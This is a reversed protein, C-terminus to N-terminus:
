RGPSSSLRSPPPTSGGIETILRVFFSSAVPPPLLGGGGIAIITSDIGVAELPAGGSSKVGEEVDDEEDDEATDRDSAAAVVADEPKAGASPAGVEDGDSSSEGGDADIGLLLPTLLLARPSPVGLTEGESKFGCSRKCTAVVPFSSTAEGDEAEWSLATSCAGGAIPTSFSVCCLSSVSADGGGDEAENRLSFSCVFLVTSAAGRRWM